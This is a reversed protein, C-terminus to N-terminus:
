FNKEEEERRAQNFNDLSTCVTQLWRDFEISHLILLERNEDTCPVEYADPVNPDERLPILKRLVDMTLGRWDRIVKRSYEKRFKERDIEERNTLTVPDFEVRKTRDFLATMQAKGYYTVQVHFPTDKFQMWVGESTKATDILNSINIPSNAM